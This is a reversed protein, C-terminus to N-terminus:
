RILVHDIGQIVGNACAVDPLTITSNAPINGGGVGFGGAGRQLVVRGGQSSVVRIESGSRSRLVTGPTLQATRYAGDVIHANVAAPARVPDLDRRAAEGAPPPFLDQRINIPVANVAANTPAFITATGASNLADLQGTRSLAAVFSSFRPDQALARGCPLNATAPAATVAAPTAATPARTGATGGMDACGVLAMSGFLASIVSTSRATM